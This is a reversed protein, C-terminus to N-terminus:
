NHKEFEAMTEVEVAISEVGQTIEIPQCQKHKKYRM